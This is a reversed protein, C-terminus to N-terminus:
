IYPLRRYVLIETGDSTLPCKKPRWLIIQSTLLFPTGELPNPNLLNINISDDGAYSGFPRFVTSSLPRFVCKSKSKSKSKAAETKASRWLSFSTWLSFSRHNEIEKEEGFLPGHLVCVSADLLDREQAIQCVDMRAEELPGVFGIVHQRRAPDISWKRRKQKSKSCVLTLGLLSADESGCRQVLLLVTWKNSHNRKEKQRQIVHTKRDENKKKRCIVRAADIMRGSGEVCHLPWRFLITWTKSQVELKAVKIMIEVTETASSSRGLSRTVVLFINPQIWDIGRLVYNTVPERPIGPFAQLIGDEM